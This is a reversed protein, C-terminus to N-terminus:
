DEETFEYWYKDDPNYKSCQERAEDQTLNGEVYTKKDTKKNRKFIYKMREVECIRKLRMLLNMMGIVM